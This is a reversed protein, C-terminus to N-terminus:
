ELVCGLITTVCRMRRDGYGAIWKSMPTSITFDVCFVHLITVGVINKLINGGIFMSSALTM